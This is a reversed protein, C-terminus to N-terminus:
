AFWTELKRLKHCVMSSLNAIDRNSCVLNTDDAVIIFKFLTSVNVMNNIYLIFLNSGLISGQPAGCTIDLTIICM